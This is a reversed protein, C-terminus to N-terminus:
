GAWHGTLFLWAWACMVVVDAAIALVVVVRWVVRARRGQPRWAILGALMLFVPFWGLVARNVSMYWYSTGFALLQVGILGFEAWRRKLLCWIAGVLGTAMAVIEARFLWSVEPRGPWASIPTSVFTNHFSQWPTVFGRAWGAQEAQLWATWSGTVSFLYVEFGGLVVLPILM